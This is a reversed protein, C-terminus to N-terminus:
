QVGHKLSQLNGIPHQMTSIHHIGLYRVTCRRASINVLLGVRGNHKAGTDSDYSDPKVRIYDGVRVNGYDFDVWSDNSYMPYNDIEHLNSGGVLNLVTNTDEKSLKHMSITASVDMIASYINSGPSFGLSKLKESLEIM